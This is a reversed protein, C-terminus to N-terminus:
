VLDTVMRVVEIPLGEVLSGVGLREQKGMTFAECQAIRILVRRPGEAAILAAIKHYRMVNACAWASLSSGGMSLDAGKALLLEVMGERGNYAAYHLPTEGSWDRPSVDHMKAILLEAVPVYGDTATMHLPTEEESNKALPDWGNELLMATMELDGNNASMHLPTALIMDFFRWGVDAGNKILRRAEFVDGAKVAKRFM